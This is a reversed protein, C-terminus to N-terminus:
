ADTGCSSIVRRFGSLGDSVCADAAVATSYPLFSFIHMLIEVPLVALARARDNSGDSSLYWIQTLTTVVLILRVPLLHYLSPVLEGLFTDTCLQYCLLREYCNKWPFGPSQHRCRESGTWKDSCYRTSCDPKTIRVKGGLHAVGNAVRYLNLNEELSMWHEGSGPESIRQQRLPSASLAGTRSPIARRFIKYLTASNELFTQSSALCLFFSWSCEEPLGPITGEALRAFIRRWGTLVGLIDTEQSLYNMLSKALDEIITPTLMCADLEILKEFLASLFHHLRNPCSESSMIEVLYACPNISLCTGDCGAELLEILGNASAINRSVLDRTLFEYRLLWREFFTEPSPSRDKRPYERMVVNLDLGRSVFLHNFRPLDKELVLDKLIDSRPFPGKKKPWKLLLQELFEFDINRLLDLALVGISDRLDMPAGKKVLHLFFEYDQAGAALHLISTTQPGSRRRKDKRHLPVPFLGQWNIGPCECISAFHDGATHVHSRKKRYVSSFLFLFAQLVKDRKSPSPKEKFARIRDRLNSFHRATADEHSRQDPCANWRPVIVSQTSLPHPDCTHEDGDFDYQFMPEPVPIYLLQPTVLNSNNM